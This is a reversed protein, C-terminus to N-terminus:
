GRRAEYLLEHAKGFDTERIAAMAADAAERLRYVERMLEMRGMHEPQEKLRLGDTRAM